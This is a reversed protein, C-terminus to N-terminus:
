TEGPTSRPAMKQSVHATKETTERIADIDTGELAKKLDVIASEVEAKVDVPIKDENERVSKETSYALTDAGNRMEAEERRRAGEEAYKEGEDVMRQIDEKALASGSSITVLPEKGTGLNKASM